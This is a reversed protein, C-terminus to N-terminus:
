MIVQNLALNNNNVSFEFDEVHFIVLTGLNPFCYNQYKHTTIPLIKHWVNFQKVCSLM